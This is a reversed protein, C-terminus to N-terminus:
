NSICYIFLWTHKMESLVMMHINAYIKNCGYYNSISIIKKIVFLYIPLTDVYSILNYKPFIDSLKRILKFRALGQFKTVFKSRLRLRTLCFFFPLCQCCSERGRYTSIIQM